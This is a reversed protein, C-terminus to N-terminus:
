KPNGSSMWCKGNSSSRRRTGSPPKRWRRACSMARLRCGSGSASESLGLRPCRWEWRRSPKTRACLLSTRWGFFVSIIGTAGEEDEAPCRHRLAARQRESTFDVHFFMCSVLAKEQRNFKIQKTSIDSISLSPYLSIPVCKSKTVSPSSM